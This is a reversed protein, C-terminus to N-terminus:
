RSGARRASVEDYLACYRRKMTELSFREEITKLAADRIRDMRDSHLTDIADCLAAVCEDENNSEFLFGNVGHRIIEGNGGVNSVVCPKRLSMAELIAMSLGESVSTLVFIDFRNVYNLPDRVRGRFVVADGLGLEDTLRMLSEREPGDGILELRCPGRRRSVESFVRILFRYNKIPLLSGVSGITVAGDGATDAGRPATSVALGNHVVCARGARIRLKEEVERMLRESVCVYRDILPSIMREAALLRRNSRESTEYGHNTHILPVRRLKAGPLGYLLGSLNHSHVVDIRYRGIVDFLAKCSGADIRGTHGLVVLNEPIEFEDALAGARSICCIVPEYLGTDLSNAFDVVIRELGGVNLSYVVLLIRKKM